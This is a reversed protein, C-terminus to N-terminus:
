QPEARRAVARALMTLRRLFTALAAADITFPFVLKSEFGADDFGVARRQVADPAFGRRTLERVARAEFWEPVFVVYPM